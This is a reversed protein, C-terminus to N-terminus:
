DSKFVLGMGVMASWITELAVGGFYLDGDVGFDVLVNGVEGHVIDRVHEDPLMGVDITRFLNTLEFFVSSVGAVGVLSLAWVNPRCERRAVGTSIAKAIDQFVLDTNARHMGVRRVSTEYFRFFRAANVAFSINQIVIQLMEVGGGHAGRLKLNDSLTRVVSREESTLDDCDLVRQALWLTTDPGIHRSVTPSFTIEYEDFELDVSMTVAYGTGWRMVARRSLIRLGFHVLSGSYMDHAEGYVRVSRHAHEVSSLYMNVLDCAFLARVASADDDIESQLCVNREGENAIRELWLSAGSQFQSVVILRACVYPCRVQFMDQLVVSRSFLAAKADDPVSVLAGLRNPDALSQRLEGSADLATIRALAEDEWTRQNKLFVAASLGNAIAKDSLQRRQRWAELEPWTLPLAIDAESVLDDDGALLIQKESPILDNFLVPAVDGDM